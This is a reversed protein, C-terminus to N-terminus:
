PQTTERVNNGVRQKPSQKLSRQDIQRLECYVEKRQSATPQDELACYNDSADAREIEAYEDTLPPSNLRKSSQHPQFKPKKASAKNLM